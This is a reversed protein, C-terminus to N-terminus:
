WLPSVGAYDCPEFNELLKVIDAPPADTAPDSSSCIWHMMQALSAKSVLEVGSAQAVGSMNAFSQVLDARPKRAAEFAKLATRWDRSGGRHAAELANVVAIASEFASNAGQGVNPHMGHASDGVLAVRGGESRWTALPYRGVISREFIQCEPIAEIAGHVDTCVKSVPLLGQKVGPLGLGGRGNNGSLGLAAEADALRFQWFTQGSGGDNLMSMWRPNGTHQFFHVANPPHVDPPLQDTAVISGWNLQGFFIPSDKPAMQRRAVSFLGDCALVVQAPVVVDNEFYLLVSNNEEVFSKLSRNTVVLGPPLLSALVQQMNHWTVGIKPRGYKSVCSKETEHVEESIKGDSDITTIVLQKRICGIEKVLGLIDPHIEELAAQGNPQLCLIGQSQSRLQPAREYVKCSLGRRNLGIAVALGVLGISLPQTLLAM